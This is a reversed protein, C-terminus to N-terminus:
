HIATSGRAPEHRMAITDDANIAVRYGEKVLRQVTQDHEGQGLHLHEFRIVTPAHEEFDLMNVVKADFGEADVQLVDVARPAHAFVEALTLAPVSDGVIRKVLNPWPRVHGVVHDRDFSAIQGVWDEDDQDVDSIRWLTMTGAEPAVAVNLLVVGDVGEYTTQLQAFADPQPEVLVGRWGHERILDHLPDNTKGDFAGVQVFGVETRRASLYAGVFDLDLALPAQLASPPVRRILLGRKRATTLVKSRIVTKTTNLM